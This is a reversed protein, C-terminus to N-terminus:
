QRLANEVVVGHSILYCAWRTSISLGLTFLFFLLFWGLESNIVDCLRLATSVPYEPGFLFLFFFADRQFPFLSFLLFRSGDHLSLCFSFFFSRSERQDHWRRGFSFIFIFCFVGNHM